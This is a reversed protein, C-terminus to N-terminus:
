AAQKEALWRVREKRRLIRIRLACLPNVGGNSFVCDDGITVKTEREITLLPSGVVQLGRGYSIGHLAFRVRNVRVSVKRWLWSPVKLSKIILLKIM